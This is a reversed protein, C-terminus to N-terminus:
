PTGSLVRTVELHTSMRALKDGAIIDDIITTFLTGWVTLRDDDKLYPASHILSGYFYADPHDDLVWNTATTVSLPDIAKWYTLEADFSGGSVWPWFQFEDGVVSYMQPDGTESPYLTKREIIKEPEVYRIPLYNPDLFITRAGLFDDPVAFFEADITADSRGMMQRVPGRAMFRRQMEGEAMRIWGSLTTDSLDARNLEDSLATKLASYTDLAM